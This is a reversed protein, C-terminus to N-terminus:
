SEMTNREAAQLIGEPYRSFFLSLCLGRIWLDGRFLLGVGLSFHIELGCAKKERLQRGIHVTRHGCHVPWFMLLQSFAQILTHHFDLPQAGGKMPFVDSRCGPTPNSALLWKSSSGQEWVPSRVGQCSAVKRPEIPTRASWLLGGGGGGRRAGKREEDGCEM